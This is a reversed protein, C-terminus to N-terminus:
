KLTDFALPLLDAISYQETKGDQTVLLIQTDQNAFEKIKQRCGGCPPCLEDTPSLIVMSKIQRAGGMIMASIASAEACQGLPYSINEVNCGAYTNGDEALLAAGVKFGSYPSYSHAQADKAAQRLDGNATASHDTQPKHHSM